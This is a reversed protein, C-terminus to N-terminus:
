LLGESDTRGSLFNLLNKEVAEYFQPSFSGCLPYDILIIINQGARTLLYVTNSTFKGENTAYGASITYIFPMDVRLPM